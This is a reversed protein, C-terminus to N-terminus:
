RGLLSTLLAVVCYRNGSLELLGFLKLRFICLFTCWCIYLLFVLSVIHKWMFSDVAEVTQAAPFSGGWYARPCLGSDVSHVREGILSLDHKFPQVCECWLTVVSMFACFGAFVKYAVPAYHLRWRWM